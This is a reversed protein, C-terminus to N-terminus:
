FRVRRTEFWFAAVAALFTLLALIMLVHAARTSSFPEFRLQIHDINAPILVGTMAANTPFILLEKGDAHARWNPDYRENIVLFRDRESPTVRGDIVDDNYTVDLAGSADFGESGSFNEVLSHLTLKDIKERVPASAGSTDQSDTAPRASAELAGGQVSPPERVGTVKEVLFHRPLPPLSTQMLGFSIGDINVAESRDTPGGLSPTSRDLRESVTNFYLDPTLVILYKVNLLSMLNPDVDSMSRMEIARLTRVGEPWPLAALRKPAGGTYGGIMRAQWFQSIHSTLLRPYLSAQSLLASRFDGVELKEAFEKLKNKDPPRMMSPTVNMYNFTGFPMPYTWTHPGDVKFHAYTVTEVFAFTAVLLTTVVRGDLARTRWFLSTLAAGLIAATLVVRVVVPPMAFVAPHYPAIKFATRPVLQDVVPGHILWSLVAAGLVIGVAAAVARPSGLRAVAPRLPLSKLEALYVAFLSCLPLVGVLSLRSHTFDVRGFMLYVGYYGEPVLVVFLTFILAFLHFATDTPRPSDPVLRKFIRGFRLYRDSIRLMLVITSLICFYLGINVLEQTPWAATPLIRYIPRLALIMAFLLLGALLELRTAPRLAGFCVFLAATTSSALQLGEHFNLHTGILAGETYYRGYIGEHFFRLFEQYGWLHYASTRASQFFEQAVTILRPAAFLLAVVSSAAFVILITLAGRTGNKWSAAARYLAYAGLFCFAYSVEQLFGWFALASMSLTLGIFPGVLNGARTRRIALVAAPLLVLVLYMNDMVAIRLLGFASLGYCLAGIAAPTKTGTLDRMYFYATTCATLVLAISVYGLARYVGDRPFLQLFYAVPDTGLHMWHLAAVSFGGFMNANWGPVRGYTQLADYEALRMNLYANLRDSEGIFVAAGVLQEWFVVAVGGFLLTLVMVQSSIQDSCLIGKIAALSHRLRPVITRPLTIEASRRLFDAPAAHPLARGRLDATSTMRVKSPETM